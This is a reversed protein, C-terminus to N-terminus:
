NQLADRAAPAPQCTPGGVRSEAHASSVRRSGLSSRSQLLPDLRPPPSSVPRLRRRWLDESRIKLARALLEVRPWLPLLPPFAGGPFRGWPGQEPCGPPRRGQGKGEKQGGTSGM